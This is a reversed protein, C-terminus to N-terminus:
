DKIGTQYGAQTPFFVKIGNYFTLIPLLLHNDIKLNL